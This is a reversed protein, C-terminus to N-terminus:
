PAVQALDVALARRQKHFALIQLEGALEVPRVDVHDPLALTGGALNLISTVGAAVLLDAVEAAASQPTAIVGIADRGAVVAPLDILARITLEGVQEGIVTPDADFLGAVQFGRTVFGRHGALARGLHGMGVIVVAWDRTMGLERSIELSLHEVDYGVGRVGYTGLHSLDKRVKASQVGAAAALDESSTNHVGREAMGALVRLYAPLRAVTAEPVGRRRLETAPM